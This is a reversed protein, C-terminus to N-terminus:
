IPEVHFMNILEDERQRMAQAESESKDGQGTVHLLGHCMVRFLEHEFSVNFDSANDAVRDRSILINVENSPADRLDFTLIDTLTDHDLYLLNHELMEADSVFRFVLVADISLHQACRSLAAKWHAKPSRTNPFNEFVVQLEV